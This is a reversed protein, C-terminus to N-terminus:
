KMMKYFLLLSKSLLFAFLDMQAVLFYFNLLYGVIFYKLSKGDFIGNLVFAGGPCDFKKIIRSHLLQPKKVENKPQKKNKSKRKKNSDDNWYEEEVYEEINEDAYDKTPKRDWICVTEDTSATILHSKTALIDVVAEELLMKTLLLVTALTSSLKNVILTLSVLLNKLHHLIFVIIM